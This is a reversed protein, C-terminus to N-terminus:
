TAHERRFREGAGSRAPLLGAATEARTGAIGALHRRAGGAEGPAIARELLAASQDRGGGALPRAGCQPDNERVRAKERQSLTNRRGDHALRASPNPPPPTRPPSNSTSNSSTNWALATAPFIQPAAASTWPAIWRPMALPDYLDALTAGPFGARADLMKTTLM